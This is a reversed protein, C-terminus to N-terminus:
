QDHFRRTLGIRDTGPTEYAAVFEASMQETTRHGALKHWPVTDTHERQGPQPASFIPNPVSVSKRNVRRVRMWDGRLSVWDGTAVQDPGLTSARGQQQLQAYVERWYTLQKDLEAIERQLLATRDEDPYRVTWRHRRTGREDLYSELEDRGDLARQYRRQEADMREIRNAVTVPSNRAGEHHSATEARRSLEEAKERQKISRGLQKEARARRNRDTKESHHGILIPQGAPITRFVQEAKERTGAAREAQAQAREDLRDARAQAREAQHAEQEAVTPTADDIDYDIDYGLGALIDAIESIPNPKSPRHRSSRLLWAHASPAWVWSRHQKLAQHAPSHKATGEITTGDEYRHRITLTTATAM